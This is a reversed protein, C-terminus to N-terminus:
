EILLNGDKIIFNQPLVLSLSLNMHNFGAPFCDIRKALRHLAHSQIYVDHPIEALPSNIGLQSPKLSFWMLGDTSANGVRRVPRPIGDLEVMASEPEASNLIVTTQLKFKDPGALQICARVETEMAKANACDPPVIAKCPLNRFLYIHNRLIPPLLPYLSDNGFATMFQNVKRMYENRHRAAEQKSHAPKSKKRMKAM